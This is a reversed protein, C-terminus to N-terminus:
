NFVYFFNKVYGFLSFKDILVYGKSIVIDYGWVMIRVNLCDLLFLDGLWYVGDDVFLLVVLLGVNGVFVFSGFKLSM